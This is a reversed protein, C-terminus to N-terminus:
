VDIGVLALPTGEFVLVRSFFPLVLHTLRDAVHDSHRGHYQQFTHPVDLGTLLTDLARAQSALGFQDNDEVDFAL